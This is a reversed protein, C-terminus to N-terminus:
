SVHFINFDIGKGEPHPLRLVTAAHQVVFTPYLTDQNSPIVPEVIEALTPLAGASVHYAANGDLFAQRTDFGRMGGNVLIDPSVHPGPALGGRSIAPFHEDSQMYSAAEAPNRLLNHNLLIRTAEVVANFDSKRVGSDIREVVSWLKKSGEAIDAAIGPAEAEGTCRDHLSPFIGEERLVQTIIKATVDVTASRESLQMGEPSIFGSPLSGGNNMIAATTLMEAFGYVSAVIQIGPRKGPIEQEGDGPREDVCWLTEPEEPSCNELDVPFFYAEFRATATNM